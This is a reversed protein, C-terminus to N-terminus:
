EKTEAQPLPAAGTDADMAGSEVDEQHVYGCPYYFEKGAPSTRKFGTIKKNTTYHLKRLSSVYRVCGEIYNSDHYEYLTGALKNQFLRYGSYNNGTQYEVPIFDEPGDFTITNNKDDYTFTPWFPHVEIKWKGNEEWVRPNSLYMFRYDTNYNVFVKQKYEAVLLNDSNYIKLTVVRLNQYQSSSFGVNIIKGMRTSYYNSGLTPIEKKTGWAWTDGDISFPYSYQAYNSYSASIINIITGSLPTDQVVLLGFVAVSSINDSIFKENTTLNLACMGYYSSAVKVTHVLWKGGIVACCRFGVNQDIATTLEVTQELTITQETQNVKYVRVHTSDEVLAFYEDNKDLIFGKNESCAPAEIECSAASIFEELTDYNGDPIYYLHSNAWFIKDGNGLTRAAHYRYQEPISVSSNEYQVTGKLVEVSDQVVLNAVKDAMQVLTEKPSTPVGKETIRQALLNKGLSTALTLESLAGEENLAAVAQAVQGVTASKAEAAAAQAVALKDGAALAAAPTLETIQKTTAM